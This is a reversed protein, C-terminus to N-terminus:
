RTASCKTPGKDSFTGLVLHGSPKISQKAIALYKTIQIETTLFHFAARDHWIDMPKLSWEATVDAELWTPVAGRDGLRRRARELASGSIDLVALCDLGDAVLQDILHSDGGGVDIVCTNRSLGCARLMSLSAEPLDEFWSVDREGKSSFVTEWHSRRDM